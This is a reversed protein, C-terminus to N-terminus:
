YSCYEFFSKVVMRAHAGIPFETMGEEQFDPKVERYLLFTKLVSTKQSATIIADFINLWTDPSDKAGEHALLIDPSLRVMPMNNHQYGGSAVVVFIGRNFGAEVVELGSQDEEMQLDTIILDISNADESIVSIIEAASQCFIFDIGSLRECAKKAASINELADDVIAIRDFKIEKLKRTFEEM